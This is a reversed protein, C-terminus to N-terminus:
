KKVLEWKDRGKYLIHDYYPSGRLGKIKEVPIGTERHLYDIDGAREQYGIFLGNKNGILTKDIESCRQAGARIKVGYKRGRSILDYWGGQAKGTTTVGGLEDVVLVSPRRADALAFVVDTFWAFNQAGGLAFCLKIPGSNRAKEFFEARSTTVTFGDAATFSGEPDFVLVRSEGRIDEKIKHTKGSGSSGFYGRIDKVASENIRPNM